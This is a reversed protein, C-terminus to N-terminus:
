DIKKNILEMDREPSVSHNGGGGATKGMDGLSMAVGGAVVRGKMDVSHSQMAMDEVEEPIILDALTAKQKSVFRRQGSNNFDYYLLSMNSKHERSLSSTDM